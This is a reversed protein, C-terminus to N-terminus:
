RESVKTLPHGWKDLERKAVVKLTEDSNDQWGLSKCLVQASQMYKKAQEKNHNREEAMAAQVYALGLDLDILSEIESANSRRKINGLQEIENLLYKDRTEEPAINAFLRLTQIASLEDLESEVRILEPRSLKGQELQHHGYWYHAVASGLISGAWLSLILIALAVSFWVGIPRRKM